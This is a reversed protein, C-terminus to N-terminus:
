SALKGYLGIGDSRVNVESHLDICFCGRIHGALANPRMQRHRDSARLKSLM